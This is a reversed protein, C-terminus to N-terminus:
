TQKPLGLKRRIYDEIDHAADWDKTNSYGILKAAAEKPAQGKIRIWQMYWWPLEFIAATLQASSKRNALVRERYLAKMEDNLGDANVVQAYYIFDMLVPNRHNRYRLVPQISFTSFWYGAAGSIIGILVALLKPDM